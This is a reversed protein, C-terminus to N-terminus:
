YDCQKCTRGPLYAEGTADLFFLPWISRTTLLPGYVPERGDYTVSREQKAFVLTLGGSYSANGWREYEPEGDDDDDPFEHDKIGFGGEVFVFRRDSREGTPLRAHGHGVWLYGAEAVVFRDPDDFLYLHTGCATSAIGMPIGGLKCILQVERTVQIGASLVFGSRTGLGFGFGIGVAQAGLPAAAALLLAVVLASRLRRIRM